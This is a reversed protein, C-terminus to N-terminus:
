ILYRYLVTTSGSNVKSKFAPVASSYQPRVKLALFRSSINEWFSLEQMEVSFRSLYLGMDLVLRASEVRQKRGECPM